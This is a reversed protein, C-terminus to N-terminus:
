TTSKTVLSGASRGLSLEQDWGWAVGSGLQVSHCTLPIFGPSPLSASQITCIFGSRHVEAVGFVCSLAVTCWHEAGSIYIKSKCQQTQESYLLATRSESSTEVPGPGPCLLHKNGNLSCQHPAVTLAKPPGDRHPVVLFSCGTSPPGPSPAPSAGCKHFCCICIYTHIYLQIMKWVGSVLVISYILQVEFLFRKKFFLKGRQYVTLLPVTVRKM